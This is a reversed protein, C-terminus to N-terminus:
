YANKHTHGHNPGDNNHGSNNHNNKNKRIQIISM